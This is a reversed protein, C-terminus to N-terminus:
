KYKIQPIWEIPTQNTQILYENTKSYLKSGYFGAKGGSYAEAAPHPLELILHEEPNPIDNIIKQADKGLLIFVINKKKLCLNHIVTSTFKEWNIDSDKYYGAQAQRVMLVRNLLFVGQEAWDTLNSISRPEGLDNELEKFLVRLSAPITKLCSFALGHAHGKTPYPDQGLLVVKIDSVPVSKFANFLDQPEPLVDSQAKYEFSVKNMLEPFENEWYEPMVDYWGSSFNEKVLQPYNM